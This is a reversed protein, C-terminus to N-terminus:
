PQESVNMQEYRAELDKFDKPENMTKRATNLVMEAHIQVSKKHDSRTAFHNIVTFAEMLRIMVAPTDMGSQRIQNFAADMMGAFTVPKAIVRLTHKDDYRYPSPFRAKTLYCMCEMLNDICTIATFPDNVGTSLARSAVEVMQHISFGADQAPTRVRGIIFAKRIKNKLKDNCTKQSCVTIIDMNEVIYDGPRYPLILLLDHEHAIEMLTDNDIAELYGNRTSTVSSRVKLRALMAKKDKEPDAPVDEKGLDIPFLKKISKNLNKNVDAIVQDAQIGISIHHIFVVLLIISAAALIIAFMISIDPIFEEDGASKVARLVLLNYLFTAVYMGLVMQNIPDYMFNRLLRPGFQSSALTLAVLTISFVTGAVTLMAGAITSLVYRASEDGGVLMFSFMGDHDLQVRTDVYLFGAALAVSLLIMMLPVFWFSSSLNGWIYQLRTKM